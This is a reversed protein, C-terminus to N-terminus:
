KFLGIQIKGKAVIEDNSTRKFYYKFEVANVSDHITNVVVHLQLVDDLYVPKLYKIDQSHIVVDKSPLCEGIFFSLFGGLINGHMVREAFGKKQAYADNTHLPNKDKFTNIFGDYVSESVSFTNVFVDGINIKM